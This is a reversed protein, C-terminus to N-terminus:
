LGADELHELDGPQRRDEGDRLRHVLGGGVSPGAPESISRDRSNDTGERVSYMATTRRITDDSTEARRVTASSRISSRLSATDSAHVLAMSALAAAWWSWGTTTLTQSAGSRKSTHM